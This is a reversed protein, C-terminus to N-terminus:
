AEQFAESVSLFPALEEISGAGIRLVRLGGLGESLDVVTTQQPEIEGGDLFEEVQSAYTDKKGEPVSATVIPEGLAELLAQVIPHTTVRFGVTRRHWLHRPIAPGPRLIITYPGPWLRKLLRYTPTDIGLAYQGIAGVEPLFVSFLSKDPRVGRLKCLAEFAGKHSVACGVAYTTDTPYLILKGERLAQAARVIARKHPIGDSLDWRGM